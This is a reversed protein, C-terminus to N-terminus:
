SRRLSILLQIIQLGDSPSGQPFAQTPRLRMPIVSRVLTLFNGCFWSILFVEVWHNPVEFFLLKMSYLTIAASILPGGLLIFFRQWKGAAVFETSGVRANNFHLRCAIRKGITIPRDEFNKGSEGVTIRIKDKTLFYAVMAHGWEHLLTIVPQLIWIGWAAMLIFPLGGISFYDISGFVFINM